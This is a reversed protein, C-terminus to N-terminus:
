WADVKVAFRYSYFTYFLDRRGRDGWCRWNCPRGRCSGGRCSGWTCTRHRTRGRELAPFLKGGRSWSEELRWFIIWRCLCAQRDRRSDGLGKLQLKHSFARWVCVRPRKNFTSLFMNGEILRMSQIFGNCQWQRLVFSMFFRQSLILYDLLVGNYKLRQKLYINQLCHWFYKWLYDM